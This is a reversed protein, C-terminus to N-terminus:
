NKQWNYQLERRICIKYNLKTMAQFYIALMSIIVREQIKKFPKPLILLIIICAKKLIDFHQKLQM